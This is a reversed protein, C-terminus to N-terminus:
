AASKRDALADAVPQGGVPTKIAELLSKASIPKALVRRAGAEILAERVPDTLDPCLLTLAATPIRTALARVSETRDMGNVGASASEVIIEDFNEDEALQIADDGSDAVAFAAVENEIVARVISQALPNRDVLLLRREALPRPGDLADQEGRQPAAVRTLPLTLTFASGRGLRSEVTVDGGMAHSLNRCIALGLGTGSYRRTTGGDVQHFSEFIRALQDPPIGIGSDEIRIRMLEADGAQETSVGIRVTGVETFKIANSLLNFLIQRLRTEDEVIRRPADDLDLELGVNKGRAQGSWLRVVDELLRRLDMEDRHIALKGTEMKAVDLLDDVLAKMTEGAGQVVQLRERLPGDIASDHLIVQTMGLIGNLPTRIEHSTTALFETKAKLAKELMVNASSLNRNAARVQNRSRRISFYGFSLLGFIVLAASGLGITVIQHLRARAELQGTKLKAIRLDQNAFDFRAAMLAANTNAALTRSEDELRKFAELHALALRDDGMRQYLTHAFDHFERYPMTTRALDAGDFTRAIYASAGSLDGRKFAIEAKVGWLFPRWGAATDQTAIRLGRDATAEAEALRGRHEQASAINTLVRAQLLASDLKQAATFAQRYEAEAEGYRGLERLANGRNNHTSVTFAPDGSYAEAAQAQYQLVREYDHADNYIMGIYTLSMAQGRAEDLKRFIAHAAQFNELAQQIRGLQAAVSGNSQLLDANLKTGPAYRQAQRLADALIPDAQNPKQLRILAEGQLWHATALAVTRRISAPQVAAYRAATAAQALGQEPDAMMIAKSRAIRADFPAWQAPDTAAPATPAPAAVTAAGGALAAAPAMGLSAAALWVKHM